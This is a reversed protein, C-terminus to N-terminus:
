HRLVENIFQVPTLQIHSAIDVLSQCFDEFPLGPPLNKWNKRTQAEQRFISVLRSLQGDAIMKGPARCKKSSEHFGLNILLVRYDELTIVSVPTEGSVEVVRTSYSKFVAELSIVTDGTLELEVEAEPTITSSPLQPEDFKHPKPIAESTKASRCAKSHVELARSSSATPRMFGPASTRKTLKSYNTHYSQEVRVGPTEKILRNLYVLNLESREEASLIRNLLRTAVPISLVCNLEKEMLAKLSEADLNKLPRLLRFVTEVGGHSFLPQINLNSDNGSSRDKERPRAFSPIDSTM